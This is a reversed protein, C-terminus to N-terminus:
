TEDMRYRLPKQRKRASRDAVSDDDEEDEDRPSDMPQFNEQRFPMNTLGGAGSNAASAGELWASNGNVSRDLSGNSDADGDRNRKRGISPNTGSGGGEADNGISNGNGNGTASTKNRGSAASHLPLDESDEPATTKNNNEDATNMDAEGLSDKPTDTKPKKPKRGAGPRAGGRKSPKKVAAVGPTLGFQSQSGSPSNQLLQARVLSEDNMSEPSTTSNARKKIRRRAPTFHSSEGQSDSIEPSLPKHEAQLNAVASNTAEPPQVKKKRGAGPRRGGRKKKIKRPSQDDYDGGLDDDEGLPIHTTWDMPDEDSDLVLKDKSKKTTGKRATSRQVTSKGKKGTANSDANEENDELLKKTLNPFYDGYNFFLEDGAKIDRLATFKIRFEGNVYLIKPTINCAKRDSESAHNIYRSLNGYIAADVWIGENELLTFLYSSASGEDFVDGRRAERRVGEDHSILEGTYEIVFEDQAIDEATFLGYGCEPIQSKGLLVTKAAGRQLSVNQCGHSHLHEDHANEPDARERAGCGCLVPDCERNLQICICPKMEKQKQLCTKGASRCACGTFKIACEEATCHCFRECLLGSEACPCRRDGRGDKVCPGQHHCPEIMERIAHEHTNTNNEWDGILQKKKRDYWSVPKVKPKEGPIDIDPLRLDLEKLKRYVDWCKRGLVAAVFCQAKVAPSHGLAAFTQELVSVEADSWPDVPHAHNGVDYSRYCQNKCASHAPKNLAGNGNQAKRAAELQSIWKEKLTLGLGGTLDLCFAGRQNEANLDGHECDHSFCILCGLAAYTGVQEEIRPLLDLQQHKQSTPTEKARKIDVITEVSKDLMLIDRLNVPKANKEDNFVRDFAETFMAAARTAQPSITTEAYMDLLDSKQQPTIADDSRSHSAMFSILTSTTCGEINLKKLWRDLYLSLTKAYEDRGRRAVREHRDKTKFGSQSDLNELEILWKNYAKEEKSNPEVDRLHPVFNLMTNPTLINKRVEVHHFRYKPVPIKSSKIATVPFVVRRGQGGKTKGHEGNHQKVKIAMARVQQEIQVGQELACSSMDTFHDSPANQAARCAGKEIEELVYESLRSHGQEVAGTFASLATAIKDVTWDSKKPTQLAPRQQAQAQPNVQSPQPTVHKTSGRSSSPRASQQIVEDRSSFRTSKAPSPGPSRSVKQVVSPNRLSPSDQRLPTQTRSSEKSSDSISIPRGFNGNEYDTPNPGSANPNVVVEDVASNPSGSSSKTLDVLTYISAPMNLPM